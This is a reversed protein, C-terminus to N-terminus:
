LPQLKGDVLLYQRQMKKALEIDHTVVVLSRQQTQNLGLLLDFVAHATHRDLNGTPEDALICQPEAILARALAARQREGGSLEGPMHAMRHALGVRALMDAALGLAQERPMRRILLPMAVNELATFEALLHHFQYVFGLSRNRLVGKQAENLAALNQKLIRVEGASAADLGGLLHLLTSKGSGSSGVIAIQEGANVTLDIGNLVAV